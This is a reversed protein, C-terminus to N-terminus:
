SNARALTDAIAVYTGQAYQKTTETGCMSWDDIPELQGFDGVLIISINGFTYEHPDLAAESFLRRKAQQLRFHIRAFFARGIFSVEDVILLVVTRWQRELKRFAEGELENKWAANPFVHFSSCATKAGFDINSHLSM